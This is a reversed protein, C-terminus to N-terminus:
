RMQPPIVGGGGAGPSPTGGSSSGVSGVSMPGSPALPATAMMPVGTQPPPPPAGVAGGRQLVLASPNLNRERVKQELQTIVDVALNLVALKTQPKDGNAGNPTLGAGAAAKPRLNMCIRGLEGLADNIDRIRMRERTNNSFRRERDKEARVVPDLAEEQKKRKGGAGGGSAGGGRPGKTSSVVPAQTNKRKRGPGSSM